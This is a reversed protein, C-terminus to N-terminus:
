YDIIEQDIGRSALYAIVKDNNDNREPMILKKEQKRYEQRHFVPPKVAEQGVIQEVAEVFTLGNVKILYDLASRGGIGRSFWCWKGNSIQLSDHTKTCYANGSIHVIEQPEFKQLYTLLDIQKAQLILEPSVYSM